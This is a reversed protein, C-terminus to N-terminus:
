PGLIFPYMICAHNENVMVIQSVVAFSLSKHLSMTYASISLFYCLDDGNPTSVDCRIKIFRDGCSKCNKPIQYWLRPRSEYQGGFSESDSESAEKPHNGM